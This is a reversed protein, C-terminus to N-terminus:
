KIFNDLFHSIGNDNNSLTIYDAKEKIEKCANEMAVKYGCADFMELDNLYDGFCLSEEKKINLIELLKTVGTGKSVNKNIADISCNHNVITYDYSKSIYAVDLDIEKIYKESNIVDKYNTAVIVFQAVDIKKLEKSTTLLKTKYNNENILYKNIYIDSITNFMIGIENKECYNWIKKIKDKEIYDSALVKQNKYDYIIVGNSAIVIPSALSRRSKDITYSCNRGSTLVVYIGKDIIRKISRRTKLTIRKKDTLLTKDIDIFIIKINKLVEM